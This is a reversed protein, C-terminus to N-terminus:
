GSAAVAAAGAAAAAAMEENAQMVLLTAELAQIPDQRDQPASAIAQAALGAALYPRTISHVRPRLGDLATMAAALAPVAMESRRAARAAYAVLLGQSPKGPLDRARRADDLRRWLAAGAAPDAAALALRRAENRALDRAAGASELANAAANLRAAVIPAEEGKLAFAAAFYGNWTSRGSWWPAAVLPAIAEIRLLDAESLASRGAVAYALAAAPLSARRRGPMAPLLSARAARYDKAQRNFAALTAAFVPRTASSVGPAGRLALTMDRIRGALADPSDPAGLAALAACRRAYSPRTAGGAAEIARDLAVFHAFAASVDRGEIM